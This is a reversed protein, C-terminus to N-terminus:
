RLQELVWEGDQRGLTLQEDDGAVRFVAKDEDTGPRDIIQSSRSGPRSAGGRESAYAARAAAELGDRAWGRDQAHAAALDQNVQALHADFRGRNRELQRRRAYAGGVALIIVLVVFVGLAIALWTPMRCRIVAARQALALHAGVKRKVRQLANDVTKCDCGLQEGIGTYSHGDLYLGLVHSELESLVTSLCAVLSRLEESSIVQNVPDHM